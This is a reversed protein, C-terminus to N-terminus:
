KPNPKDKSASRLTTRRKMEFRDRICYKMPTPKMRAFPTCSVVHDLPAIVYSDGDRATLLVVRWLM